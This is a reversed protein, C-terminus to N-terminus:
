CLHEKEVFRNSVKPIYSTKKRIQYWYPEQGWDQLDELILFSTNEYTVAVLEKCFVKSPTM